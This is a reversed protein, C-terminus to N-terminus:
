MNEPQTEDEWLSRSLESNQSRNYIVITAACKVDVNIKM